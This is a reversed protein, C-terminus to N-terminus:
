PMRHRVRTGRDSSALRQELGELLLDLAFEFEIQDDCGSGVVSDPDHDIAMVMATLNPYAEPSLPLQVPRPGPSADDFLEHTYGLLRSGLAHMAHHTFDLSFGGGRMIGVMSDMYALIAPSPTARSGIVLPAWPHRRWAGRASLVRGRMTIKWGVGEPAPDIEGVVRDVMGDLLDEKDAVHRYLAMPVVGLEQALRRMSVAESGERDALTVAATLIRERSLPTRAGAIVPMGEMKVIHVAYAYGGDAGIHVIYVEAWADAAHVGHLVSM